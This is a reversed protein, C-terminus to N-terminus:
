RMGGCWPFTANGRDKGTPFFGADGANRRDDRLQDDRTGEASVSGIFNRPGTVWGLRLGALSFVESLGGTAVAKEYLDVVSPTKELPDHELGQYVEDCLIWAGSRDAVRAVEKLFPGDMLACTSSDQTGTVLNVKAIRLQVFY